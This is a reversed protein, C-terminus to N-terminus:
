VKPVENLWIEKTRVGLFLTTWVIRAGRDTAHVSDNERKEEKNKMKGESKKM